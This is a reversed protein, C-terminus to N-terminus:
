KSRNGSTSPSSLFPTYADYIQAGADLVMSGYVGTSIATSASTATGIANGGFRWGVATATQLSNLGGPSGTLLPIAMDSAKAIGNMSRNDPAVLATLGELPGTPAANQGSFANILNGTHSGVNYSAYVAAVAGVGTKATAYGVLAVAGNGVIGVTSKGALGWDAAALRDGAAVLDAASSPFGAIRMNAGETAYQRELAAVYEMSYKGTPDVFM